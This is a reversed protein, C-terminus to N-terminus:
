KNDEKRLQAVEPKSGELRTMQSEMWQYVQRNLDSVRKTNEDIAIKDGIVLKIVGPYKVFGHRPWAKGADHAVPIVSYGTEVALFAGGM